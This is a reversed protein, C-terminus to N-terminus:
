RELVLLFGPNMEFIVVCTQLKQLASDLHARILM